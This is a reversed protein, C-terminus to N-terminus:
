WNDENCVIIDNYNFDEEYNESLEENDINVLSNDEEVHIFVYSDGCICIGAEPPLEQLINIMDKVKVKNYGKRKEPNYM